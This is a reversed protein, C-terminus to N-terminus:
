PHLHLPFPYPCSSSVMTLILLHSRSLLRHIVISLKYLFCPRPTTAASSIEIANEQFRALVRNLQTKAPVQRKDITSAYGRGEKREKACVEIKNYIYTYGM